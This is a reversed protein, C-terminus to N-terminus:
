PEVIGKSEVVRFNNSDTTRVKSSKVLINTVKYALHGKTINTINIVSERDIFHLHKKPTISFHFNYMVKILYIYKCLTLFM